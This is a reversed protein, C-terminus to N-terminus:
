LMFPLIYIFSFSFTRSDRRENLSLILYSFDLYAEEESLVAELAM